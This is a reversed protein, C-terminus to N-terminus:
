QVVCLADLADDPSEHRDDEATYWWSRRNVFTVVLPAFALPLGGARLEAFAVRLRKGTGGVSVCLNPLHCDDGRPAFAILDARIRQEREKAPTKGSRSVKCWRYGRAALQRGVRM